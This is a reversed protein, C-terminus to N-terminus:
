VAKGGGVECPMYWVVLCGSYVWQVVTGLTDVPSKSPFPHSLIRRSAMEGCWSGGYACMRVAFLTEM